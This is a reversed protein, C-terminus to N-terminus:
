NQQRDPSVSSKKTSNWTKPPRLDVHTLQQRVAKFEQEEAQSQAILIARAEAQRQLEAESEESLYDTFGDSTVTNDTLSGLSNDSGSSSSASSIPSSTDFNDLASHSVKTKMAIPLPQSDPSRPSTQSKFPPHHSGSTSARRRLPHFPDSALKAASASSSVNSVSPRRIASRKAELELQKRTPSQQSSHPVDPRKDVQEQRRSEMLSASMSSPNGRPAVSALPALTQQPSGGPRGKSPITLPLTKSLPSNRTSPSGNGSGLSPQAQANGAPRGSSSVFATLFTKTTLSDLLAKVDPPITVNHIISVAPWDAAHILGFESPAPPRCCGPFGHNQYGSM